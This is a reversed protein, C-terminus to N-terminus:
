QSEENQWFPVQSHSHIKLERGIAGPRLPPCLRVTYRFLHTPLACKLRKRAEKAPEAILNSTPDSYELLAAVALTSRCHSM